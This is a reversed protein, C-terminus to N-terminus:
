KRRGFNRGELKQKQKKRRKNNPKEAFSGNGLIQSLWFM